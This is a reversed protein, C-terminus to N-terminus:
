FDMNLFFIFPFTEAKESKPPLFELTFKEIIKYTFNLTSNLIGMIDGMGLGFWVELCM